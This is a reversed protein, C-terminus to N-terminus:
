AQAFRRLVARNIQDEPDLELAREIALRGEEREGCFLLTIALNGWAGANAPAVEVGRRAFPLAEQHRELEGLCLVLELLTNIDDPVLEAATMLSRSADEYNGMIRLVLGRVYHASGMEHGAGGTLVEVEGLLSQLTQLSAEATRPDTARQEEALVRHFLDRLRTRIAAESEGAILPRGLYVERGSRRDIYVDLRDQRRVFEFHEAFDENSVFGSNESLSGEFRWNAPVSVRPSDSGALWAASVVHGLVTRQGFEIWRTPRTPGVHQDVATVDITVGDRMFTLGRSQLEALFADADPPSMFGVSFLSEDVSFARNPVFDIFAAEGGKFRAAVARRRAVVCLGEILVAM